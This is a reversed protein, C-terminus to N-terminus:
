PMWLYYFGPHILKEALQNFELNLLSSNMPEAAARPQADDNYGAYIHGRYTGPYEYSVIAPDTVGILKAARDFVQQPYLIDDVLKLELAQRATLIRGDTARALMADTLGKDSRSELIVEKFQALYSDVLHQFIKEQENTLPKWPAGADKNEGSKIVSFGLGIKEALAAINPMVTIVGISGTLATPIAYIEDAAMAIYLGGSAAVQNLEAIVPIQNEEKFRIIEHYILDSATVTGGPSDIRLVVARINPNNEAALLRDKLAVLMGPGGGFGRYTGGVEVLGSLPIMLVQERTWWSGAPQIQELYVQGRNNGPLASISICGTLLPFWLAAFSFLFILRKM